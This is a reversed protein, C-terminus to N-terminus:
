GRDRLVTDALTTRGGRLKPRTRAPEVSGDPPGLLVTRRRIRLPLELDQLRRGTEDNAALLDLDEELGLVGLARTLVALSVKADGQELRSITERSVGVRAALETQPMRRRLRAARLREGLATLRAQARPFTPKASRGMDSVKPM